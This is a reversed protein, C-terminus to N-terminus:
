KQHFSRLRIIYMIRLNESSQQCIVHMYFSLQFFLMFVFIIGIPFGPRKRLIKIFSSFIFTDVRLHQQGDDQCLYALLSTQCLVKKPYFM